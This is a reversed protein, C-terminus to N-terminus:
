DDGEKNGSKSRKEWLFKPNMYIRMEKQVRQSLRCVTRVFAILGDVSKKLDSIQGADRNCLGNCSKTKM